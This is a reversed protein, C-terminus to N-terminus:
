KITPTGVEAPTTRASQLMSARWELACMSDYYLKLLATRM